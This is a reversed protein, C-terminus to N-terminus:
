GSCGGTLAIRLTDLHSSVPSVLAAGAVLAGVLFVYMLSRAAM